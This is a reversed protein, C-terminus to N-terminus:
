LEKLAEMIKWCLRQFGIRTPHLGDDCYSSINYKNVGSEHFMDLVPIAYVNGYTLMMNAFDELTTNTSEKIPYGKENVPYSAVASDYRQMPTILLIKMTPYHTSCYEIAYQLAGAYNTDDTSGFEGLEEGGQWDNTGAWITLFDLNNPLQEVFHAITPMNGGYQAIITYDMGLISGLMPEWYGMQTLSDGIMAIKKGYLHTKPFRRPSGYPFFELYDVYDGKVIMVTEEESLLISARMYKIGAETPVECFHGQNSLGSVFNRNEDWFTFIPNSGTYRNFKYTEGEEVEILGTSSTYDSGGRLVGNVDYYQNHLIEAPNVLNITGADM